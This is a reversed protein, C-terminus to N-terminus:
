RIKNKSKYIFSLFSMVSKVSPDSSLSSLNTSRTFAHSPDMDMATGMDFLGLSMGIMTSAQSFLEAILLFASTWRSNLSSTVNEM